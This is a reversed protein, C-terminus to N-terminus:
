TAAQSTDNRGFVQRFAQSRFVLEREKSALELWGVGAALGAGAINGASTGAVVALRVRAEALAKIVGIHALGRM